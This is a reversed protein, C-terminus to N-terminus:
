RFFLGSFGIPKPTDLDQTPTNPDQADQDKQAGTSPSPFIFSSITITPQHVETITAVPASDSTESTTYLNNTMNYILAAAADDTVSLDPFPMPTPLLPPREDMPYNFDKHNRTINGLGLPGLIGGTGLIPSLLGGDDSDSGDGSSGTSTPATGDTSSGDDTTTPTPPPVDRYFVDTRDMILQGNVELRFGGDQEGPTNLVITQRVNTWGGPTFNFSGRGVSLGYAADCM